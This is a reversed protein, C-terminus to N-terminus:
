IMELEDEFLDNLKRQASISDTQDIADLYKSELSQIEYMSNITDLYQDANANILEWEESVYELGMGNTVKDNLGQFILNIANLYKDQIAEVAEEVSSRWDEIAEMWKEKASEWKDSGEEAADMQQKWFDVQQRQFDLQALNNEHQKNYYESLEAYSDEGGVLEILKMDHEILSSIQDYVELQEDFKEQAEDM